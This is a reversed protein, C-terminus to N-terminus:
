KWWSEIYYKDYIEVNKKINKPMKVSSKVFCFRPAVFGRAMIRNLRIIIWFRHLNKFNAQYRKRRKYDKWGMSRFAQQRGMGRIYGYCLVSSNRKLKDKRTYQRELEM